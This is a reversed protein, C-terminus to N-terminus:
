RTGKATHGHRAAPVQGDRYASMRALHAWLHDATNAM